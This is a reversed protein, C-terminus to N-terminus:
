EIELNDVCWKCMINILENRSYGTKKCIKDLDKVLDDPMYTNFAVKKTKDEQKKALKFKPDDTKQAIEANSDINKSGVPKEEPTNNPVPTGNEKKDGVNAKIKDKLAM